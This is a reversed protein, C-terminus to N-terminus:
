FGPQRQALRGHGAAIDIWKRYTLPESAVRSFTLPSGVDSIACPYDTGAALGPRFGSNLLRYYANLAADSGNVDESIFDAAGLAVEV